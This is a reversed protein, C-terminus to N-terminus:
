PTQEPRHTVADEIWSRLEAFPIDDLTSTAVVIYATNADLPAQAVAERLRRKARNRQVANGVRRGAVVGVEPEHTDSPSRYVAVAGRRVRYGDRYISSFRKQGRLRM